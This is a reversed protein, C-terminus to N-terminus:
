INRTANTLLCRAYQSLFTSEASTSFDYRTKDGGEPLSERLDDCSDSRDNAVLFEYLWLKLFSSCAPLLRELKDEHIKM